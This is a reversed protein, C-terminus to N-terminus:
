GMISLQHDRQCCRVSYLSNPLTHTHPLTHAFSGVAMNYAFACKMHEMSNQGVCEALNSSNNRFAKLDSRGISSLLTHRFNVSGFSITYAQICNLVSAFVWDSPHSRKGFWLAITLVCFVWNRHLLLVLVFAAVMWGARISQSKVGPSSKLCIEWTQWNRRVCCLLM